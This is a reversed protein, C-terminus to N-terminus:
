FYVILNLGRFTMLVLVMKYFLLLSTVWQSSLDATSGGDKWHGATIVSLMLSLPLYLLLHVRSQNWGNAGRRKMGGRQSAVMTPLGFLNM